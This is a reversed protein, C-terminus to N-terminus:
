KFDSPLFYFASFHLLSSLPAWGHVAHGTSAHQWSPVTPSSADLETHPSRTTVHTNSLCAPRALHQHQSQPCACAAGDLTESNFQLFHTSSPSRYM